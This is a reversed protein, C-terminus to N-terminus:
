KYDIGKKMKTDVFAIGLCIIGQIFLTIFYGKWFNDLIIMNLYILTYFMYFVIHTFLYNAFILIYPAKTNNLLFTYITLNVLQSIVYGCFGGSIDSIIMSKGIAFSMIAVFLVMSVGSVSIAVVTKRYGKMRKVAHTHIHMRGPNFQTEQFLYVCTRIGLVQSYM